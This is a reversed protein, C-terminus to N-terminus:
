QAPVQATTSQGAGPANAEQMGPQPPELENAKANLEFALNRADTASLVISADIPERPGPRDGPDVEHSIVIQGNSIVVDKM